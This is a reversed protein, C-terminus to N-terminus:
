SGPGLVERLIGVLNALAWELQARELVLPPSIGLVHGARGAPLVLIGRRLAEVAVEAAKGPMPAGNEPEALEIGLFLGRGRVEAVEPVDALGERFGNLLEVGMQRSREVLGGKELEDLLALGAACALPHGLFTSTHIAEGGSLPWVDMVEPPGLCVSLPLGGGLGKGLCLLDPLVGEGLCAFLSGTRGLGTFIEDFILLAGAARVLHAVEALFGPPPIRVGARGQIPEVIVSGIDDGGAGADLARALAELSRAGAEPGVHLPDPFPVFRVGPYLRDRFPARFYERETTALSGLTLGHYSGEFAVIGPKGTALLATKLAAEVAESGSSGLIARSEPWPALRALAELFEVKRAPPHVDGMGHVLRESQDRITEVVAPNGHGAVSVGFAGTLDLYVNGDVDRVNAGRAAEWFVPFAPTLHTVNRSEVQSLRRAM